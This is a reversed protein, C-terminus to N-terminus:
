RGFGASILTPVLTEYAHHWRAQHPYVCITDGIPVRSAVRAVWEEPWVKKVAEPDTHTDFKVWREPFAHYEIKDPGGVVYGQSECEIRRLAQQNLGHFDEEEGPWGGAYTNVLICGPNTLAFARVIVVQRARTDPYGTAITPYWVIRAGAMFLRQFCANLTATDPMPVPIKKISGDPQKEEKYGVVYPKLFSEAELFVLQAPHVNKIAAIELAFEGFATVDWGPLRLKLGPVIDMTMRTDSLLEDFLQPSSGSTTIVCAENTVRLWQFLGRRTIELQSLGDTGLSAPSNCEVTPMLRAKM